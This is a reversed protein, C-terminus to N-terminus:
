KQLNLEADLKDMLVQTRLQIGKRGLHYVTDYFLEDPFVYNESSGLFRMELEKGLIAELHRITKRNKNYESQAYGPYAYYVVAGKARTEWDFQNLLKVPALDFNDWMPYNGGNLGPSPLDLHYIADGQTNFSTRYDLKGSDTAYNKRLGFRHNVLYGLRKQTFVPLYKLTTTYQPLSEFYQISEPTYYLIEFLSSGQGDVLHFGALFQEYEPSIIIIDGKGIYPKVQSLMLRLGLGGNVGMNVVPRQYHEELQSASLGYCVNSGGVLVIKPSGAQHLYSYKREMEAYFNKEVPPLFLIDGVSATVLIAM